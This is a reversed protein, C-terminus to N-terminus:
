YVRHFGTSNLGKQVCPDSSMINWILATRSNEIALLLMGLDIGIVDQDYWNKDVNFADSFGFTGELQRGHKKALNKLADNAFDPTYIASAIMASPSSTGDNGGNAPIGAGYGQPPPLDNASIGWFGEAYTKRGEPNRKCYAHDALVANKWLTWWGRGQRDRMDKINVFGSAMEAMFLPSPGGAVAYGECTSTPAQWKDWSSASISHDESGIALWYLFIAESYGQWRNPLFKHEPSWGMCLTSENPQQGGDTQMWRWDVRNTIDDALVQVRTGHWYDGAVRAGMVVLATDISSLECNWVRTGTGKDLFHYYFGHANPIRKDFANLILNARAYGQKGTIWGRRVGIPLAALAYGSSAISAVNNKSDVPGSNHARDNTLGSTPDTQVWFFNFACRELIPLSTSKVSQPAAAV